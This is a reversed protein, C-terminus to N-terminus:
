FELGGARAADALLKIRGAYNFGNRDFVIAKVKADKALKAIDTGVATARDRKTGSKAKIDSASAITAGKEDNILQAYIFANSRFVSLRPREATGFIKARIRRKIRERRAKKTRREQM